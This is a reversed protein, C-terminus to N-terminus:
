QCKRSVKAGRYLLVALTLHYIARLALGWRGLPEPEPINRITKSDSQNPM